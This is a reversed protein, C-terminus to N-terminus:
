ASAGEKHQGHKHQGPKHQGQQGAQRHHGHHGGGAATLKFWVTKGATMDGAGGIGGPDVGWGDSLRDVMQLGRGSPTEPGVRATGMAPTGRGDDYVSVTLTEGDWGVRLRVLSGGHRVANSVLESVLLEADDLLETALDGAHCRVLERAQAVSAPADALEATVDFAQPTM